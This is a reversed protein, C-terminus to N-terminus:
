HGQQKRYIIQFQAILSAFAFLKIQETAKVFQDLAGSKLPELNCLAHLTRM